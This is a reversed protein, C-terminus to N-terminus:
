LLPTRVYGEEVKASRLLARALDAGLRAEAVGEDRRAFWEIFEGVDNTVFVQNHSNRYTVFEVKLYKDRVRGIDFSGIYVTVEKDGDSLRVGDPCRILEYERMGRTIFGLSQSGVGKAEVGEVVEEGYGPSVKLLIERAVDVSVDIGGNKANETLEQADKDINLLTYRGPVSVGNSEIVIIFEGNSDRFYRVLYPGHRFSKTRLENSMEIM